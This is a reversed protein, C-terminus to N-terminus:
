EYKTNVKIKLKKEPWSKLETKMKMLKINYAKTMHM